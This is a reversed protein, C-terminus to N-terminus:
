HGEVRIPADPGGSEGMPALRDALAGLATGAVVLFDGVGLLAPVIMDYTLSWRAPRRYPAAYPHFDAPTNM